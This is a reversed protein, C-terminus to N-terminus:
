KENTIEDSVIEVKEVNAVSLPHKYGDKAWKILDMIQADHKDLYSDITKYLHAAVIKIALVASVFATCLMLLGLIIIVEM